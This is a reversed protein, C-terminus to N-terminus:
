DLLILTEIIDKIHQSDAWLVLHNYAKNSIYIPASYKLLLASQNNMENPQDTSPLILCAPKCAAEIKLIGPHTGYPKLKHHAEMEGIEELSKDSQIASIKFFGDLGEYFAADIKAWRVPYKFEIKYVESRYTNLPKPICITQGVLPSSPNIHPNSRVLASLKVKYKQSLKYMTDGQQITYIESVAPCSFHPPTIPIYIIQGAAVSDPNIGPNAEMLDDLTINYYKSIKYITDNTQLIYPVTSVENIM